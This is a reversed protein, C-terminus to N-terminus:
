NGFSQLITSTSNRLLKEHLQLPILKLSGRLPDVELPQGRHQQDEISEDGKCFEEFCWQVTHTNATEPGFTNNISRTTEVAKHGIRFEFLFIVLIQKKDLMMEITYILFFFVALLLDNAFLVHFM